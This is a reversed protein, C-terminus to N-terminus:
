RKVTLTALNRYEGIGAIIRLIHQIEVKEFYGEKVIYHTGGGSLYVLRRSQFTRLREPTM